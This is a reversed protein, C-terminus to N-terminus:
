DDEVVVQVLDAQSVTLCSGSVAALRKAEEPRDLPIMSLEEVLDQGLSSLLYVDAWDLAEVMRRAAPYDADGEHGKLRALGRKADDMGMLRQFAPGIAGEARSLVVIKGGRQVLKTATALGRAVDTITSTRDSSGVGVIALEARTEARVTWTAELARTGEQLVSESAGAIVDFLGSTGPIIGVQFLCGLLWTVEASEAESTAGAVTQVAQKAETDALGPFMVDWPGRTGSIPDFSLRGIPLIFDADALLRNLYVRRGNTTTALYSLQERNAPDHRVFTFDQSIQTELSKELDPDALVTVLEPEVEGKKLLQGIVRVLPTVYPVNNGLAIVVSDGPVIAKKLAPLGRPKELASELRSVAEIPDIGKPGKWSLILRGDSIDLGLKERDFEVEVRM